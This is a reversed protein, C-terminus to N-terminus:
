ARQYVTLTDEGLAERAVPNLTSLLGLPAAVGQGGLETRSRFIQAEDVLGAQLFLAATEAGGEVMLRNIGRAALHQLASALNVSTGEKTSPVSIVTQNSASNDSTIIWPNLQGAHALVENAPQTTLIVPQPSRAQLGSLRVNLQPQDIELTKRGILIADAQARMMHVRAKVEAGTIATQEGARAAIKGDASVALKLIVYPRNRTIRNLFGALDSAAQRNALMSVEVGGQRLRELGSGAVRPDPDQVAVVVRAIGAAVLAEACPPTKGHHSCPELTVFATAGSAKEGAMALAQTEAHPRGGPATCGVGVVMNDKIIVCGVPPNEATTGLARHGLRAAYDMWRADTPM